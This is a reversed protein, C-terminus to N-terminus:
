KEVPYVLTWGRIESHTIDGSAKYIKNSNKDFYYVYYCISFSSDMNEYFVHPGTRSVTEVLYMQYTGARTEDTFTITGFDTISIISNYIKYDIIAHQDTITIDSKIFEEHKANIKTGGSCGVFCLTLLCLLMIIIKKM